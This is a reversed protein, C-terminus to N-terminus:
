TRPKDQTRLLADLDDCLQPLISILRNTLFDIKQTDHERASTELNGAVEHIDHACFNGVTSKITHATILLTQTDNEELAKKLQTTFRAVDDRLCNTMDQLFDIDGDLRELLETSNIM